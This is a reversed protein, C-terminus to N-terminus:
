NGILLLQGALEFQAIYTPIAKKVVELENGAVGSVLLVVDALKPWSPVGSAISVGAGLFLVLGDKRYQQVLRERPSLPRLQADLYLAQKLRRLLRPFREKDDLSAGDRV